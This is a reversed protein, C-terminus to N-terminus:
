VSLKLLLARKARVMRRDARPRQAGRLGGDPAGDGRRPPEVGREGRAALQDVEAPGVVVARSRQEAVHERDVPVPHVPEDPGLDHEGPTRDSEEGQSPAARLILREEPFRVVFQGCV